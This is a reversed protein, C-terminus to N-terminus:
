YKILTKFGDRYTNPKKDMYKKISEEFHEFESETFIKSICNISFVEQKENCLFLPVFCIVDRWSKSANEGLIIDDEVSFYEKPWYSNSCVLYQNLRLQYKSILFSPYKYILISDFEDSFCAIYLPDLSIIKAIQMDGNRLTNQVNKLNRKVSKIDDKDLNLERIIEKVKKNSIKFGGPNYGAM